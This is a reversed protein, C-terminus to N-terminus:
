TNPIHRQVNRKMLPLSSKNYMQHALAWGTGILASLIVSLATGLYMMGSHGSSSSSVINVVVSVLIPIPMTVSPGIIFILPQSRMKQKSPPDDIEVTETDLPCIRRPARSFYSSDSHLEKNTLVDLEAAPLASSVSDSDCVAIVSGLFILKHGTIYITDFIHLETMASVRRGNIYTGNKSNDSLVYRGNDSVIM